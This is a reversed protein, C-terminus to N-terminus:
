TNGFSSSHPRHYSRPVFSPLLQPRPIMTMRPTRAFSCHFHLSRHDPLAGTQRVHSTGSIYPVSSTVLHLTHVHTQACPLPLLDIPRTSRTRGLGARAAWTAPTRISPLRRARRLGDALSVRLLLNQENCTDAASRVYALPRLLLGMCCRPSRGLERM